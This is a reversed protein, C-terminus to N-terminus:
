VGEGKVGQLGADAGLNNSRLVDGGVALVHQGLAITLTIVKCQHILIRAILLPYNLTHHHRNPLVHWSAAQM